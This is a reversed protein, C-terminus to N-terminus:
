IQLFQRWTYFYLNRTRIKSQLLLWDLRTKYTNKTDDKRSCNILVPIIGSEISVHKATSAEVIYILTIYHDGRVLANYSERWYVHAQLVCSSAKKITNNMFIAIYRDSTQM